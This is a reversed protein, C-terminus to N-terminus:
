GELARLAPVLLTLARGRHSSADKEAPTLEAATRESGEPLFVPDYGFGGDGRPERTVTGPWEGRVVTSGSASVLACASVFAAGRREDPVDALQALLLETNAADNGHTGSWRASLVGPMGNLAAVTIGSDDAVCALGTAEFGDRAKALANEEFTAGTEPSEDYPAVDDLSLLRLGSIGAADLVRRLEALKKKNRSAVLLETM